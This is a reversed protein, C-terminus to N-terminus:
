GGTTKRGMLLFGTHGRMVDAPRTRKEDVLWERVLTEFVTVQAFGLKAVEVAVTQIQSIQPNFVVLMGGSRLYEALWLARWAEPLDLILKDAWGRRRGLKVNRDYVDGLLMTVNKPVAGFRRKLNERALDQFEPRQEITLIAGKRVRDALATLFAGSGTGSEIVRDEPRIDALLLITGIDKPYMIQTQRKTKMLADPLSPRFFSIRRGAMIISWGDPKGVVQGLEINGLHTGFAPRSLHALWRRDELAIIVTDEKTFRKMATNYVVVRLPAAAAQACAQARTHYETRLPPSALLM